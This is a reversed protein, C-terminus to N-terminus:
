RHQGPLAAPTHLTPCQGVNPQTSARDPPGCHACSPRIFAVRHHRSSGAVEHLTVVHVRQYIADSARHQRMQGAHRRPAGAVIQLHLAPHLRHDILAPVLDGVVAQLDGVLAALRWKLLLSARIQSIRSRFRRSCHVTYLVGPMSTIIKM